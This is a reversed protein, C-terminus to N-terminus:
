RLEAIMADVEAKTYTDSPNGNGEYVHKTDTNVPIFGETEPNHLNFMDNVALIAARQALLANADNIQVISATAREGYNTIDNETPEIDQKRFTNGLVTVNYRPAFLAEFYTCAAVYDGIGSSLHNGDQIFDNKTEGDNVIPDLPNISTMRLSEVATGYPIVLDIGYNAMMWKVGDAMRQWRETSTEGIQPSSTNWGPQSHILYFGIAAQPCYTKIIRLYETLGGAEGDGTWEEYNDSYISSSHILIIDWDKKLLDVFWSNDLGSYQGQVVGSISDGAQKQVAYSYDDAEKYMNVWSRFYAGGRVCTYLSFGTTIGAADLINKLYHVADGTYSNGLDLIRLNPKKLDVPVNFMKCVSKADPTTNELNAVRNELNDVRKIIGNNENAKKYLTNKAVSPGHIGREKATYYFFAEGEEAVVTFPTQRDEGIEAHRTIAGNSDGFAWLWCTPEGNNNVTTTGTGTLVFEDGPVCATNNGNCIFYEGGLVLDPVRLGQSWWIGMVLEINESDGDGVLQEYAFDAHAAAIDVKNHIDSLENLIGEYSSQKQLKYPYNSLASFYFSVANDPAVISYNERVESAEAVYGEINNGNVDAFVYLRSLGSSGTGTITFVDGGKCSSVDNSVLGQIDNRIHDSYTWYKGTTLLVNTIKDSYGNIAEYSFDSVEEVHGLREDMAHETLLGSIIPHEILSAWGVNRYFTLPKFAQGQTGTGGNLVFYCKSYEVLQGVIEEKTDREIYFLTVWEGNIHVQLVSAYKQTSEKYVCDQWYVRDSNAIDIYNDSQPDDVGEKLVIDAIFANVEPINCLHTDAYVGGSKVFKESDPTPEADTHDLIAGVTAVKARKTSDADVFDSGAAKVTGINERAQEQQSTTLSQQSYLLVNDIEDMGGTGGTATWTGATNCRYVAGPMNDGVTAWMGVEPHPYAAQLAALTAFMGVNPQKVHDAYLKGRIHVDSHFDAASGVNLENQVNLDSVSNGQRSPTGPDDENGWTRAYKNWSYKIGTVYLYDGELGGSPYAQWVAALNPFNGLNRIDM